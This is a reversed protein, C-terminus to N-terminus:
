FKRITFDDRLRVAFYPCNGHALAFTLDNVQAAVLIGCVYLATDSGKEIRKIARKPIFQSM